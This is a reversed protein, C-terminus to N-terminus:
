LVCLRASSTEVISRIKLCAKSALYM